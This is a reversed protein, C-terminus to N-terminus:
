HYGDSRFVLAKPGNEERLRIKAFTVPSPVNGIQIKTVRTNNGLTLKAITNRNKNSKGTAKGQVRGCIVEKFPLPIHTIPSLTQLTQMGTDAEDFM